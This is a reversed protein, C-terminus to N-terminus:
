RPRYHNIRRGDPPALQPPHFLPYYASHDLQTKQPLKDALDMEPVPPPVEIGLRAQEDISIDTLGEWGLWSWSPFPVRRKLSMM